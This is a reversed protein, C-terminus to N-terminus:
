LNARPPGSLPARNCCVGLWTCVTLLTSVRLSCVATTRCAGDGHTRHWQTPEQESSISSVDSFARGDDEFALLAQNVTATVSAQHLFKRKMKEYKKQTNAVQAEMAEKDRLSQALLAEVGLSAPKANEDQEQAAAPEVYAPQQQAERATERELAQLAKPGLIIGNANAARSAVPRFASHEESSSVMGIVTGNLAAARPSAAVPAAAAAAAAAPPSKAMMSLEMEARLAEAAITFGVSEDPPTPESGYMYAARETQAPSIPSNLMDSGILHQQQLDSEDISSVVPIDDEGMQAGTSADLISTSELGDTVDKRTSDAHVSSLTSPIQMSELGIGSVSDMQSATTDFSTVLNDNHIEPAAPIDQCKKIMSRVRDMDDEDMGRQTGIESKVAQVRNRLAILEATPDEPKAADDGEEQQAAVEATETEELQEEDDEDLLDTESMMSSDNGDEFFGPSFTVPPSSSVAATSRMAMTPSSTWVSPGMPFRGTKEPTVGHVAAASEQGQAASKSESLLSSMSCVDEIHNDLMAVEIEVDERYQKWRARLMNLQEEVTSLAETLLSVEIEAVRTAEEASAVDAESQGLADQLQEIHADKQALLQEVLEDDHISKTANTLEEELVTHEDQLHEVHGALRALHDKLARNAQELEEERPSPASEAEEDAQVKSLLMRQLEVQSEKLLRIEADKSKHQQQFKELEAKHQRVQAAHRLAQEGQAASQTAQTAKM